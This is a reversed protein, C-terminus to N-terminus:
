NSGFRCGAPDEDLGIRVQDYFGGRSLISPVGRGFLAGASEWIVASESGTSDDDGPKPVGTCGKRIVFGFVTGVFAETSGIKSGGEM